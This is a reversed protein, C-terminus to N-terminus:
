RYIGKTDVQETLEIAKKMAKRFSVRNQLQAM